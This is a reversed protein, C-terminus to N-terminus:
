VLSRRVLLKSTLNWIIKTAVIIKDINIYLQWLVRLGRAIFNSIVELLYVTIVSGIIKIVKFM